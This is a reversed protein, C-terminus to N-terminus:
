VMFVILRLLPASRRTAKAANSIVGVVDDACPLNIFSTLLATAEAAFLAIVVVGGRGFLRLGWIFAKGFISLVANLLLDLRLLGGASGEVGHM